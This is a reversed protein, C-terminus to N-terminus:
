FLFINPMKPIMHCSKFWIKCYFPTLIKQGHILNLNATVIYYRLRGIVELGRITIVYNSSKLTASEILVKVKITM